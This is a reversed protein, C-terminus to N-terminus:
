KNNISTNKVTISLKKEHWTVDKGEKKKSVLM